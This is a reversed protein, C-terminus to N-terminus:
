WEEAEVKVTTWYVDDAYWEDDALRKAEEEDKAYVNVCVTGKLTYTVTYLKEAEHEEAERLTTFTEGDSTQYIAKIM